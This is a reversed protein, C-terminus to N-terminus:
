SIKAAADYSGRFIVQKSLPWFFVSFFMKGIKYLYLRIEQDAIVNLHVKSSFKLFMEKSIRHQTAIM